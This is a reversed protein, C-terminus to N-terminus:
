FFSVETKSFSPLGCPIAGSGRACVCWVRRAFSLRIFRCLACHALLDDLVVGTPGDHAHGSARQLDDETLTVRGGRARPHLKEFFHFNKETELGCSVPSPIFFFGFSGKGAVARALRLAQSYERARMPRGRRQRAIVGKAALSSPNM